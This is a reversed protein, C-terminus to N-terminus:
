KGIVLNKSSLYTFKNNVSFVLQALGCYRYSHSNKHKFLAPCHFSEVKIKHQPFAQLNVTDKKKSEKLNYIFSM